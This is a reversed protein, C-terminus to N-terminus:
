IQGWLIQNISVVKEQGRWKVWDIAKIDMNRCELERSVQTLARSWYLSLVNWIGLKITEQRRLLETRASAM